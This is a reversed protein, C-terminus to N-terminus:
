VGKLTEILDKKYLRLSNTVVIVSSGSMGAVAVYPAVFGMVALPLIVLNYGLAWALNQRIIKQTFAALKRADLLKTLDDGLLVMDASAKAVDTGSGMAVSLHAGALVPADNVGDGIMMTIQDGPLFNLYELKGQPSVGAVLEDIGLKDAVAQATASNDGTLMTVKIGAEHFKDILTKSSERIPDVLLFSAIAEGDRSLWIQHPSHEAITSNSLAFEPKGIRWEDGEFQGKLGEGIVNEVTEVGEAKDFDCFAESIPHNAYSELSAAISTARKADINAYLQTESISVNGETLTGTKDIVVRNIHTLTEFVHGRRLLIGLKGFTSTSCTLATPTALSLACPCTAVLVSLMIWFADEPRHSQWYWWTCASIILIAAVFYRAVIDAVEAVRPKALQAADQLQVIHAILSDKKEAIVEVDVNGDINMTGAFVKDGNQRSEPMSEGTLMSEDVTTVGEVVLGDAPFPEGPLVRVVHGITLSKAPIQEGSSLTALRPILKLLNASAAAATRRARMELFRGILLFFTFMAISEFFVEGKGTMTAYLSAFYAFLLAISVPVDMGLTRAKLNRWANVYFPMASYLLVPTAFILSVWRFYDRFSEDMDGFVEFYMAVALMMVQMTALGAIGLKYLYQKMTHHYQAEQNDAEFPAAKYGLAHIKNLLTSLKTKSPEWRLTARNTTTNVRIRSVGEQNNLQKEILWACAACSVGDVSLVVEDIGDEHRVFEQQVDENDYLSLSQLEEPVLNAKEAPATRYEYYSTLGSAVITTAVAECGPCCMIRYVGQIEVKYSDGTLVPEGCHYCDKTM